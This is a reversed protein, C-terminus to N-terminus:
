MVLISPQMWSVGPLEKRLAEHFGVTSAAPEFGVRRVRLRGIEEAIGRVKASYVVHRCRPAQQRAQTGYRGDVLLVAETRTLLLAGDSGRFGSLYFLNSLDTFLFAGARDKAMGERVRRIRDSHVSSLRTRTM